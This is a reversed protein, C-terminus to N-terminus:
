PDYCRRSCAQADDRAQEAADYEPTGLIENDLATQATVSAANADVLATAASAASTTASDLNAQDLGIQIDNAENAGNLTAQYQQRM